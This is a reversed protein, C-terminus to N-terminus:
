YIDQFFIKEHEYFAVTAGMSDGTLLKALTDLLLTANNLTKTKDYRTEM